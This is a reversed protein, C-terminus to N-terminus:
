KLTIYEEPAALTGGSSVYEIWVKRVPKEGQEFTMPLREMIPKMFADTNLCTVRFTDTDSIEKGDRCVRTLCYGSDTKKVDIAVGSVAPLSGPNFPRFGGEVGEM